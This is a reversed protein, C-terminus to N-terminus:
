PKTKLEEMRKALAVSEADLRTFPITFEKGDRKIVVAEGDLGIFMGEVSKGDKSKWVPLAFPDDSAHDAAPPPPQKEPLDEASALILAGDEVFYRMKTQECIYKLAVALPINRVRLERIRLLSTDQGSPAKRIIFKIGKKMPDGEMNDLEVSRLRLFQIAEEVTNDVFNISPIIIKRLKVQVALESGEQFKAGMKERLAKTRSIAEPHNPTLQLAEFYLLNAEAHDGKAEAEKGLLVKNDSQERNKAGLIQLAGTHDPQARLALKSCLEAVDMEGRKEAAKARAFFEEAQETPTLSFAIPSSVFGFGAAIITTWKWHKKM